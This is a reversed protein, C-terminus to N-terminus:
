NISNGIFSVIVTATVTIGLGILANIITGLAQKAKDPEGQSLIYRIGGYVIFGVAVLAGVRLLIDFVGLGVLIFTDLNLAGNQVFNVQVQCVEQNGFDEVEKPLYQDWSPIGFFYRTDGCNVAFYTLLNLM